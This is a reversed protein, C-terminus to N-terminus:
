TGMFSLLSLFSSAETCIHMKTEAEHVENGTYVMELLGMLNFPLGAHLNLINKKNSFGLNEM